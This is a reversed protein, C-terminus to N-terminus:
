PCPFVLDSTNYQSVAPMSFSPTCHLPCATLVFTTNICILISGQDTNMCQLSCFEGMEGPHDVAEEVAEESHVPTSKCIM